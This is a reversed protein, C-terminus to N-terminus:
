GAAWEFVRTQRTEGALVRTEVHRMGIAELVRASAANDPGTIALVRRLGLATRAHQLCAAAAERAYGQGWFPPPFAYGIDVDPLGDRKTLGCMGVLVGDAKREVAWFGFGQARYHAILRENIWAEAEAPSRVGRDGINALWSPQNLLDLLFAADGPTFWRLRLRDTQLVLM